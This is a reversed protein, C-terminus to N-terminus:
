WSPSMNTCIQDSMLFEKSKKRDSWTQNRWWWERISHCEFHDISLSCIIPNHDPEVMWIYQFECYIESLWDVAVFSLAEYFAYWNTWRDRNNHRVFRFALWWMRYSCVSTGDSMSVIMLTTILRTKRTIKIALLSLIWRDVLHLIMRLWAILFLNM